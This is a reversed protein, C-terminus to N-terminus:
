RVNQSSKSSQKLIRKQSKIKKSLLRIDVSLTYAQSVNTEKNVNSLRAQQDTIRNDTIRALDTTSIPHPSHPLQRPGGEFIAYVTKNRQLHKQSIM